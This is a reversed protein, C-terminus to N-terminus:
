LRWVYDRVKGGQLEKFQNDWKRCATDSFSTSTGIFNRWSLSSESQKWNVPWALLVANHKMGGLGASQILQSFGDRLNSTVVVHCFGKTKEKAM